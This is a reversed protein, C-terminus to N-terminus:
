NHQRVILGDRFELFIAFRARMEGGELISGFPIALIGTWQAEVAVQNGNAVVNLIEFNQKKIM